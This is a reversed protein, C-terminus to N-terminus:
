DPDGLLSRLIKDIVYDDQCDSVNLSASKLIQARQHAVSYGLFTTLYM